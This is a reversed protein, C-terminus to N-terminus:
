QRQLRLANDTEKDKSFLDRLKKIEEATEPHALIDFPEVLLETDAQEIM